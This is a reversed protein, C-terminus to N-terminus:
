DDGGGAGREEGWDDDDCSQSAARVEEGLEGDGVGLRQVLVRRAAALGSWYAGHIYGAYAACTAEGAFYVTPGHLGGGGGGGGPARLPQHWAGYAREPAQKKGVTGRELRRQDRVLEHVALLTRRLGIQAATEM